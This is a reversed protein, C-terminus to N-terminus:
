KFLVWELAEIMNKTYTKVDENKADSLLLEMDKIKRNVDFISRMSTLSKQKTVKIPKPNKTTLTNKTKLGKSKRLVYTTALRISVNEKKALDHVQQHHDRCLSIISTMEYITGIFKYTSHHLEINTSKCCECKKYNPRKLAKKKLQKWHNSKLYYEYTTGLIILRKDRTNWTDQYTMDQTKDKVM